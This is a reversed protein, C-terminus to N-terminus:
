VGGKCRHCQVVLCHTVSTPSTHRCLAPSSTTSPGHRSTTHRIRRAEGATSRHGVTVALLSIFGLYAFPYSSAPGALSTVTTYVVRTSTSVSTATYDTSTMTTYSTERTTGTSTLARTTRVTSTMTSPAVTITAPVVITSTWTLAGTYSTVTTKDISTLYQISQVKSAVTLPVLAVTTVTPVTRTVTSTSSYSTATKTTTMSLYSVSTVTSTASTTSSTMSPIGNLLIVGSYPPLTVRTVPQYTVEGTPIGSISVPGGGRTQALYYTAGLNVTVTTGSWDQANVFVLGNDFARRYVRSSPDYLNDIDSGANQIPAGIAIDYEPYWEPGTDQAINLYTHSSKVLLYTALVFMREQDGGVYSQAIVAKDQVLGLIRNMQLQWDSYAYPSQDAEMAFGEVMVGDAPSYDTRDRSNIWSGVNPIIYYDGVQQTQLWSLWSSIRNSWADEFPEDVAPLSPRYNDYGMYNPVSLSDTFVGDDDNAQVQRLVEGQWYSRWGSDDLNM